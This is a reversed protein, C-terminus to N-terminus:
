RGQRRPRAPAPAIRTSATLLDATLAACVPLDGALATRARQGCVARRDLAPCALALQRTACAADDDVDRRDLETRGRARIARAEEM